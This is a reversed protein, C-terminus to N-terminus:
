YFGYHNKIHTQVYELDRKEEESLEVEKEILLNAAYLAKDVEKRVSDFGLMNPDKIADVVYQIQLKAEKVGMVLDNIPM